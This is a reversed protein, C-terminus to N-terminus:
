CDGAASYTADGNFTACYTTKSSRAQPPAAMSATGTADTIAEGIREGDAFFAITRGEVPQRGDVTVL